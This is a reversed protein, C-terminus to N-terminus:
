SATLIEYCLASIAAFGIFMFKLAAPWANAQLFQPLGFLDTLVPLM